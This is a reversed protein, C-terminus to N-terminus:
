RRRASCTADRERAPPTAGVQPRNVNPHCNTAAPVAADPL